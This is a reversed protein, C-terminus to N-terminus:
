FPEYLKVQGSCGELIVQGNRVFYFDAERSREARCRRATCRGRQGVLLACNSEIMVCDELLAEGEDVVVAQSGSAEIVSGKLTARGGRREFDFPGAGTRAFKETVVVGHVHSRSVRVADLVVQSKVLVGVQNDAFVCRRATGMATGEVCLGAGRTRREGRPPDSWVAGVFACDEFLFAGRRVWAVNAWRAGQHEFRIGRAVLRGRMNFALVAGEVASTIRTREPGEGLLTVSKRPRLEADLRHEGASLRVSAGFPAEAVARALSDNPSVEFTARARFPGEATSM